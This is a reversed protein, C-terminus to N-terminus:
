RGGTQTIALVAGGSQVIGLDPLGNGDQVWALRNGTGNQVASMRNDDGQQSLVARNDEGSQALTLANGTGSQAIAASNYLSGITAQEVRAQNANGTQALLLTTPGSGDQRVLADNADGAQTLRAYATGSGTQAVDLRNGDGRQDADIRGRASQQRLTAANGSGVQAVYVDHGAIAPAEIALDGPPAAQALGPSAWGLVAVVAFILSYRM